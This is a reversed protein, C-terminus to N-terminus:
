CEGDRGAGPVLSLKPKSGSFSPHAERRMAEVQEMVPNNAVPRPVFSWPKLLDESEAAEADVPAIEEFFAIDETPTKLSLDIVAVAEAEWGELQTDTLEDFNGIPNVLTFLRKSVAKVTSPHHLSLSM